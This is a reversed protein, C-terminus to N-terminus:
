SAARRKLTLLLTGMGSILLWLAAPIPVVTVAGNTLTVPFLAGGSAFPNLTSATLVLDSNGLGQATFSVTGIDFNGSRGAFSNFVIDSVTGVANNIPGISTLFEWVGTDLAVSNVSLITPNFSLNLGGGEIPSAFNEGVIKMSFVDTLNVSSTVPEFRVTAAETAPVSWLLSLGCYVAWLPTKSRRDLTCSDKIWRNSLHNM